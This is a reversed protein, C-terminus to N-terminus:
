TRRRAVEQWIGVVLMLPFAPLFNYTGTPKCNPWCGSLHHSISLFLLIIHPKSTFCSALMAPSSTGVVLHPFTRLSTHNAPSLACPHSLPMACACHSKPHSRGAPLHYVSTSPHRFITCLYISIYLM